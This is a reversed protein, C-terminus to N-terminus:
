RDGSDILRALSETSTTTDLVVQRAMAAELIREQTAEDRDLTATVRGECLVVIRDCMALLEPLESSAMLIGTGQAALDSILAYIEAKAGVDIGRTPEDMLLVRPKTLLCRALVVKQQSGGSLTTIDTALSPTRVRLETVVDGVAVREAKTDVGAWGAFRRLAALSANFRVTNGPVVSQGKRDEAVMAIHRGIGHAPSRPAYAKEGVTIQGGVRRGAAGYIAQLLESRGAGMLGALGVIEGEHVVVDVDHLAARGQAQDGDASLRSVRLCPTASPPHEPRPFLEGMPRGVMMAILESRSTSGQLVTGVQEGDRLVTVVDAVKDIEELRHSIYIVAVGGDVLRAIVDFLRRVEADALASTPEDMVLVRVHQSLAKAVEILQQEALKCRRVLRRPDLILGLGALLERTRAHMSPRDLTGRGTRLERGLFVNDAISLDQVLNLEQHIMEIGLSKADRPHHIAVPVGDIRIEGDYEVFGGSLVNMLTSKGAGNEGLLAHVQGARVDLSVAELARVGPFSKGIGRMSLVERAVAASGDAAATQTPSM